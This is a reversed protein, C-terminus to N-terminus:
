LHLDKFWGSITRREEDTPVPLHKGAWVIQGNEIRACAAATIDFAKYLPLLHVHAHEVEIGAILYGIKLPSLNDKIRRGLHQSVITLHSAIDAPLTLYDDCHQKPTLIIHGKTVPRLPLFSIVREDEYLITAPAKRAVIDCFICDQGM